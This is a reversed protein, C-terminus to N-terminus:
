EAFLRVNKNHFTFRIADFQRLNEIDSSISIYFECKHLARNVILVIILVRAHNIEFLKPMNAHLCNARRCM